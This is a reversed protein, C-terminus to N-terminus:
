LRCVLDFRSQLESTHEESRLDFCAVERLFVNSFISNSSMRGELRLYGNTPNSGSRSIPLSTSVTSFRELVISPTFTNSLTDNMIRGFSLTAKTDRLSIEVVAKISIM